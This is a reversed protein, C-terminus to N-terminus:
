VEEGVGFEELRYFGITLFIWNLLFTAFAILQFFTSILSIAGTLLGLSSTIAFIGYAFAAREIMPEGSKEYLTILAKYWLLASAVIIAIRGLVALLTLQALRSGSFDEPVLPSLTYILTLTGLFSLTLSTLAYLFMGRHQYYKSLFYFSLLVLIYGLLFLIPSILLSLVGLFILAAISLLVALSGFFGLGKAVDFDVM